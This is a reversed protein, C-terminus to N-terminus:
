NIYKLVKCYYIYGCCKKILNIELLVEELRGENWLGRSVVM